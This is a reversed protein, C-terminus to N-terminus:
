TEAAAAEAVAEEPAADRSFLTGREAILLCVLTVTGYGLFGFALPRITGDFARDLVSGLLAGGAVQVSGIVSAAMGAVRGMPWMAIANLNPILLSHAVLLLATGILFVTLPPRGGTAVAVVAYVAAVALYGVLAGHALRAVGVRQVIRGNVLMAVGMVAALGGFIVPFAAAQGFTQGIINESSGLYSTFVGYLATIGLTTAITRRHSVVVRASRLVPGFRLRQMRDGERLTEPLRRAWLAMLLAAGACSGLTWRWSMVELAAAGLGPAVIPVLIFVAMISSIVRSMREGEFQDRVVAVTVTRPGAAGLGWVFRSALLLPLSPALATMVAGVAYIAYGVYLAPRRGYRDAMPGYGLQGLALGLFYLTVMGTVATAGPAMGLDSRIDDFAPLLLDIGLASLATSLSLLVLMERQGIARRVAPTRRAAGRDHPARGTGPASM